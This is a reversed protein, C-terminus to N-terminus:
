ISSISQINQLGSEEGNVRLFSCPGSTQMKINDLILIMEGRRISNTGLQERNLGQSIQLVTMMSGMSLTAINKSM